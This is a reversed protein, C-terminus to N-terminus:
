AEGALGLLERRLGDSLRYGHSALEDLVPAIQAIVDERKALLLV